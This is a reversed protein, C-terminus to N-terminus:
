KEVPFLIVAKKKLGAMWAEQLRKKESEVLENRIKDKVENFPLQRAARKETLRIIHYGYLSELVDSTDGVKMTALVADFEPLTQGEHFYGTDGGKIRTMDESETYALEAFDGGAKIRKLIEEAKLKRAAREAATSAPEAKILIHSARLEQPKSYRATNKTYYDEIMRDTVSVKDDVERKVIRAALINREVFRAFVIEDFGSEAIVVKFEKGSKNRAALASIEGTLESEPLKMGKALADQYELEQDILKQMAEDRVKDSKEKPMAGHFNRNLPMIKQIEQYLEAEVLKSGNVVAVVKSLPQAFGPAGYLSLGAFMLAFARLRFIM